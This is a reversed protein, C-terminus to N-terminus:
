DRGYVNRGDQKHQDYTRFGPLGPKASGLNIKRELDIDPMSILQLTRQANACAMCSCSWRWVVVGGSSSKGPKDVGADSPVAVVDVTKRCYSRMM